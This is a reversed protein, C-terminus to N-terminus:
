RPRASASSSAQSTAHPSALSGTAAAYSPPVQFLSDPEQKKEIRTAEVKSVIAGSVDFTEARLPFGSEGVAEMWSGFGFDKMPGGGLGFFALGSSVCAVTRLHTVPDVFQLEECSYGSVKSSRGTAAVRPLRGRSAPAVLPSVVYTSTAPSLWYVKQNPSDVILVVEFLTVSPFDVRMRGRKIRFRATSAAASPAGPATTAIDIEGEFGVLTEFAYAVVSTVAWADGGAKGVGRCGALALPVVAVAATALWRSRLM